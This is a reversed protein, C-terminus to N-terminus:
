GNHSDFGQEAMWDAGAEGLDEADGDEDADENFDNKEKPEPDAPAATDRTRLFEIGAAMVMFQEGGGAALIRDALPVAWDALSLSQSLEDWAPFDDDDVECRVAHGLAGANAFTFAGYFVPLVMEPAFEIMQVLTELQQRKAKLRASLVTKGESDTSLDDIEAGYAASLEAFFPSKKM